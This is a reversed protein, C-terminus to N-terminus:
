FGKKEGVDVYNTFRTDDYPSKLIIRFEKGPYEEIFKRLHELKRLEPCENHQSQAMRYWGLLEAFRFYIFYNEFFLIQFLNQFMISYWGASTSLSDQWALPSITKLIIKWKEL